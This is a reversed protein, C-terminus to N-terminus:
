GQHKGPRTDNNTLAHRLIKQSLYLWGASMLLCLPVFVVLFLAPSDLTEPHRVVLWSVVIGAAGIIGYCVGFIVAGVRQVATMPHESRILFADVFVGNRITDSPLINRQRKVVDATWRDRARM